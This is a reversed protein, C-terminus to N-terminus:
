NQKKLIHGVTETTQAGKGLWWQIREKKLTCNELGKAPDYYGVIEIFRGDRSFREDAVVIRYHPRKKAGHRSLRIKTAM